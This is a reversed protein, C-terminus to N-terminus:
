LIATPTDSELVSRNDLALPKQSDSPSMKPQLFFRAGVLVQIKKIMLVIVFTLSLSLFCLFYCQM